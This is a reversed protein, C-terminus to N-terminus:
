GGGRVACGIAGRLLPAAACRPPGAGGWGGGPGGGVPNPSLRPRPAIGWQTGRHRTGEQHCRSNGGGGGGDGHPPKPAGVDGGEPPDTPCWPAWKGKQHGWPVGRPPARRGMPKPSVGVHTGWQGGEGRGGGVIPGPASDGGPPGQPGGGGEHGWHTRPVGPSRRSPSVQFLPPPPQTPSMPIGRDGGSPRQPRPPTPARRGMPIHPCQSKPGGLPGPDELPDQPCWPTRPVSLDPAELPDQTRWPTRPGGLPKPSVLPDRPCWVQTRWPTGPGGLPKPAGLPRPSVLVTTRWPTRPGGLRQPDELPDRPCWAAWMGEQHGKPVGPGASGRRGGDRGVAGRSGLVRTCPCGYSLECVHM